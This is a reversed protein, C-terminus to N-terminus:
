RYISREFIINYFFTYGLQLYALLGLSILMMNIIDPQTKKSVQFRLVAGCLIRKEHQCSIFARESDSFKPINTGPFLTPISLISRERNQIYPQSQNPNEHKKKLNYVIWLSFQLFSIKSFFFSNISLYYLNEMGLFYIFRYEFDHFHLKRDITHKWVCCVVVLFRFFHLM